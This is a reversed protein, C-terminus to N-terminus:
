NTYLEENIPAYNLDARDEWRGTAHEYKYVVSGEEETITIREVVRIVKHSYCLYIVTDSVDSLYPRLPQSQSIPFMPQGLSEALVKKRM